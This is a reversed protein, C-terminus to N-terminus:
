SICRGVLVVLDYLCVVSLTMALQPTFYGLTIPLECAIKAQPVLQQRILEESDLGNGLFYYLNEKKAFNIMSYLCDGMDLPETYESAKADFFEDVVDGWRDNESREKKEREEEKIEEEKIEQEKIEEEKIGGEKIKERGVNREEIEEEEIEEDNKKEERDKHYSKIFGEQAKIAREVGLHHVGPNCASCEYVELDNDKDIGM